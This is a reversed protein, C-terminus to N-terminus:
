KISENGNCIRERGGISFTGSKKNSTKARKKQADVTALSLAAPIASPSMGCTVSSRVVDVGRAYAPTQPSLEGASIRGTQSLLLLLMAATDGSATRAM